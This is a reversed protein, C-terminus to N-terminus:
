AGKNTAQQSQCMLAQTVLYSFLNTHEILNSSDEQKYCTSHPVSERHKGNWTPSTPPSTYKLNIWRLKHTHKWQAILLTSRRWPYIIVKYSILSSPTVKYVLRILWSQLLSTIAQLANMVLLLFFFVCLLARYLFIWSIFGSIEHM